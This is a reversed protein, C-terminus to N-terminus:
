FGNSIQARSMVDSSPNTPFCEEFCTCYSCNPYFDSCIKEKIGNNNALKEMLKVGDM